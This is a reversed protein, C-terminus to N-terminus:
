ARESRKEPPRGDGTRVASALAGALLLPVVLIVAAALMWFTWPGVWEPRFLAARRFIDRIIESFPEEYTLAVSIDMNVPTGNVTAQSDPAGNKRDGYLVVAFSGENRVCIAVSRGRRVVPTEISQTSNDPYGGSLRGSALTARTELDEVTLTLPPGPRLYTALLLEVASFDHIPTVPSQCAEQTPAILVALRAPQAGPGFREKHYSAHAGVVGTGVLVV